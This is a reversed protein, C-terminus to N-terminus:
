VVRIYIHIFEQFNFDHVFYIILGFQLVHSAQSKIDKKRSTQGIVGFLIEEGRGRARGRGGGGNEKLQLDDLGFGVM